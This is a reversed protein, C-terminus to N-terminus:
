RSVAIIELSLKIETPRGLMETEIVATRKHRDIKKIKGTLNVMPGRTVFVQGGEIYGKSLKACLNEDTIRKLFDVESDRLPQFYGNNKLVRNFAVLHSLRDSIVSPDGEFILYGPFMPCTEKHWVGHYRKLREVTFLMIKAPIEALSRRCVSATEREEGTPIQLAYWPNM